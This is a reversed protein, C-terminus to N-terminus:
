WRAMLWAWGNVFCSDTPTFLRGFANTTLLLVDGDGGLRLMIDTIFTV